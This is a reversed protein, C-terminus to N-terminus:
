FDFTLMGARRGMQAEKLAVLWMRLHRRQVNLARLADATDTRLAVRQAARLKWRYFLTTQAAALKGSHLDDAVHNMIRQLHRVKWKMFFANVLSQSFVPVSRRVIISDAAATRWRAFRRQLSRQLFIDHLDHLYAPTLLGRWMAFARRKIGRMHESRAHQSADVVWLADRWRGFLRARCTARRRAIFGEVITREAARRESAHRWLLFSAAVTNDERRMAFQECSADMVDNSCIQGFRKRWQAFCRQKLTQRRHWAAKWMVFWHARNARIRMGRFVRARWHAFHRRTQETRVNQLVAARRWLQFVNGIRMGDHRAWLLCTKWARFVAQKHLFMRTKSFLRIQLRQDYLTVWTQWSRLKVANNHFNRSAHRECQQRRWSVFCARLKISCSAQRIQTQVKQRTRWMCFIRAVFGAEVERCRAEAGGRRAAERARWKAFFIHLKRRKLIVRAELEARQLRLNKDIVFFSQPLAQRSLLAGAKAEFAPYTATTTNLVSAEATQSLLFSSSLEQASRGQAPQPARQQLNHQAVGGAIRSSSVDFNKEKGQREGQSLFSSALPADLSPTQKQPSRQAVGGGGGARFWVNPGHVGGQQAAHLPTRQQTSPAVGSGQQDVGVREVQSLLFSSSVNSGHVGGQQASHLPTRQQTSHQAVGGQQDVGVREAQSLLFSSSVNSGQMVGQQQARQMGWPSQKVERKEGEGKAGQLLEKIGSLINLSAARSTTINEEKRRGLWMRWVRQSLTTEYHHSAVANQEIAYFHSAIVAGWREYSALAEDILQGVLAHSSAAAVSLLVAVVERPPEAAASLPVAERRFLADNLATLVVYVSSAEELHPMTRRLMETCLAVRRQPDPTPAIRALCARVDDQLDVSDQHFSARMDAAWQRPASLPPDLPLDLPSRALNVSSPSPLAEDPDYSSHQPHTQHMEEM